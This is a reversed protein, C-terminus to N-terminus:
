CCSDDDCRDDSGSTLRKKRENAAHCGKNCCDNGKVPLPAKIPISIRVAPEGCVGVMMSRAAAPVPPAMLVFSAILTIV